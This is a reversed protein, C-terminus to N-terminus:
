SEWGSCDGERCRRRLYRKVRTLEYTGAAIAVVGAALSGHPRYVVVGVLAWVALYSGVFLPVARVPGRAHARRVVVPAAGPLMM